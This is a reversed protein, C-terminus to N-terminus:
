KSILKGDKLLISCLKELEIDKTSTLDTKTIKILIKQKIINKLKQPIIKSISNKLLYNEKKQGLLYNIMIKKAYGFNTKSDITESFRMYDGKENAIEMNTIPKHQNGWHELTSIERVGWINNLFKIGGEYCACAGIVIEIFNDNHFKVENIIQFAKILVNKHSMSWLIQYYNKFFIESNKEYGLDIDEPLKQYIPFFKGDFKENFGVYKGVLTKYNKNNILFDSGNYLANILIFDDDACMVVLDTTVENLAFIIKEYFRKGPMHIYKMNSFIEGEFLENTSDCYLINADLDKFYKMSRVLYHHRNHTPIILTFNHM